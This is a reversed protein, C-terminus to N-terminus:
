SQPATVEVSVVSQTLTVTLLGSNTIPVTVVSASTKVPTGVAITGLALAPGDIFANAVYGTDPQAPKITVAINTSGVVLAGLISQGHGGYRVTSAVPSIPTAQYAVASSAVPYPMDTYSILDGVNMTLDATLGPGGYNVMHLVCSTTTQSTLSATCGNTGPSYYGTNFQTVIDAANTGDFVLYPNFGYYKTLSSAM